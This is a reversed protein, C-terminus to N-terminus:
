TKAALRPKAKKPHPFARGQGKAVARRYLEIGLSLDSIGMGMAKFVSLDTAPDRPKAAAVTSALSAVKGWKAEDKGFYAMFEASLRQVQPVSDAVVIGARDLLSPEFETREPTIAGVANFHAGKALMASTIIPTTARTVVTVIDAGACAEAITAPAEAEIGLEAKVRAIFEDRKKQDRGFIRVRTLKRVAAVAALQTISQKGTGILAMDHADAKAMYKTAVGSIGGTRFQGLVFAEIIAKVSGNAADFLLLLPTAGGETHAWTKTGVFGEGEFVAGIAHLTNGKGWTAHTKVMNKAQGAAEQKLGKELAAIADGMDMLGAVDAESIWLPERMQPVSM